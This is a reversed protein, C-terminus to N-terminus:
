KGKSHMNEYEALLEIVIGTKQALSSVYEFLKTAMQKWAETSMEQESLEHKLNEIEGRLSKIEIAADRFTRWDHENWMHELHEVIDAM